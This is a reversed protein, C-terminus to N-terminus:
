RHNREILRSLRSTLSKPSILQQAVLHGSGGGLGPGPHTFAGIQFLADVGTAHGQGTTPRWLLNQDLECAGGYPDGALANPNAASIATPPLPATALITDRFGPAHREIRDLVRDVYAGTTADDWEGTTDIRGAADGRPSFPVEQLQVWLTAKGDPARTPDLLSQQGVVVTPEEPLLGAEAQACAVGTSDAGDGLHILPVEALREDAWPVPRDLALHIQMAARGPRHRRAARRGAEPADGAPLLEDYLRTTAVSAVVARSAYLPGAPTIVGVARGGDVAIREAPTELLIDVDRERLLREFAAVFSGAGGTVVPLGLGHMSFAMVPLMVGGSAHDPSLGAHLLWPTWLQDAEWGTFRERLYARGSQLGTRALDELGQRGLGRWASAGLRLLGGTGLQSGLAGFVYPSWREFEALMATYADRDEAHELRAATAQPDRDAIAVGRDSVGATVAGDTNAYQLGHRHLDEGLTAYGPGGVFLPHWSSFTDHVFGPLTLEDSAIFGGSRDRQDVLAVQWGAGALEAAAVMGNIGAGVVIADYTSM